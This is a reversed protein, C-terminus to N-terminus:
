KAEEKPFIAEVVDLVLTLAHAAFGLAVFYVFPHFPIKLTESIEGSVQIKRGWAFVQWAVVAFFACAIADSVADLVKRVGPPFRDSLIDVVIHDRHKQTYALAAATVVAGLFSVVEYTGAFPVGFIRLAVNGTALLTLAVLAFGGAAM